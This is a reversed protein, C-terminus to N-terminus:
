KESWQLVKANPCGPFDGPVLSVQVLAGTGPLAGDPSWIVPCTHTFTGRRLGEIAKEAMASDFFTAHGIVFDGEVEAPLTLGLRSPIVTRLADIGLLYAYVMGVVFGSHGLELSCLTPLVIQKPQLRPHGPLRTPSEDMIIFTLTGRYADSRLKALAEWEEFYYPFGLEAQWDRGTVTGQGEITDLRIDPHDALSMSGDPAQQFQFPSLHRRDAM